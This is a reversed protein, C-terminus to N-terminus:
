ASSSRSAMLVRVVVVADVVGVGVVDVVGTADVVSSEPPELLSLKEVLLKSRTSGITRFTSTSTSPKVSCTTSGRVRSPAKSSAPSKGFMEKGPVPLQLTRPQHRDKAVSNKSLSTMRESTQSPKPAWATRGQISGRMSSKRRLSAESSTRANTHPRSRIKSSIKSSTTSRLYTCCCGLMPDSIALEDSFSDMCKDRSRVQDSAGCFTVMKLSRGSAKHCQCSSLRRWVNRVAARRLAARNARRRRPRM